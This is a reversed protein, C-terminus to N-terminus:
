SPKQLEPMEEPRTLLSAVLGFAGIALFTNRARKNHAFSFLWPASLTFAGVALDAGLHAKFPIVPALGWEARTMLSSLLVGGSLVQCLTTATKEEEFNMLDPAVAVLPIYMYDALGHQARSIPKNM